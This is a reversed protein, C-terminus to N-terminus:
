FELFPALRTTCCLLSSDAISGDMNSNRHAWAGGREIWGGLLAGPFASSSPGVAQAMHSVHSLHISTCPGSMEEKRERVRERRRGRKRERQREREGWWAHTCKTVAEMLHIFIKLPIWYVQFNFTLSLVEEKKSLYCVNFDYVCFSSSSSRSIEDNTETAFLWHGKRWFPVHM